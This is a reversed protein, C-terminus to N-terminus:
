IGSNTFRPTANFWNCFRIFGNNKEKNPLTIITDPTIEIDIRMSLRGRGVLHYVDELSAATGDMLALISTPGTQNHLFSFCRAGVDDTITSRAYRLLLASNKAYFESDIEDDTITLFPCDKSALFIEAAKMKHEHKKVFVAPKVEVVVVSGDQFVLLFDPTYSLNKGKDAYPITFPQHFIKKLSPFLLARQLFRRELQSEYEICDNQIWSCAIVGVSRHPSRTVVKRVSKGIDSLDSPFINSEKKTKM